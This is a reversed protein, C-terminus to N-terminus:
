ARLDVPQVPPETHVLVGDTLSVERVIVDPHLEPRALRPEGDHHEEVIIEVAALRAEELLLGLRAPTTLPATSLEVIPDPEGHAWGDAAGHHEVVVQQVLAGLHGATHLVGHPGVQDICSSMARSGSLLAM